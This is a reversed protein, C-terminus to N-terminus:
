ALRSRGGEADSAELFSIVLRMPSRYLKRSSPINRFLEEFLISLQTRGVINRHAHKRKRPKKTEGRDTYRKLEREYRLRPMNKNINGFLIPLKGHAIGRKERADIINMCHCVRMFDNASIPQELIHFGPKQVKLFVREMIACAMAETMEFRSTREWAFTALIHAADLQMTATLLEVLRCFESYGITDEVDLGMGGIERRRDTRRSVDVSRCQDRVADIVQFAEDASAGPSERLLALLHVLELVSVDEGVRGGAVSQPVEQALAPGLGDLKCEAFYNALDGLQLGGGTRGDRMTFLEFMEQLSTAPEELRMSRRLKRELHGGGRPAEGSLRRPLGKPSKPSKPSALAKPSRLSSPRLSMPTRGESSRRRPNSNRRSAAAVPCSETVEDLRSLEADVSCESSSSSFEDDTESEIHIIDKQSDDLVWVLLEQVDLFGNRDTDAAQFLEDVQQETWNKPDLLQLVAAFEERTLGEDDNEDALRFAQRIKAGIPDSVVDDELNLPLDLEM